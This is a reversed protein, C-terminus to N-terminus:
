RRTRGLRPPPRQPPPYHPPLQDFQGRFLHGGGRQHGGPQHAPRVIRDLDQAEPVHRAGVKDPAAGRRRPRPLLDLLRAAAELPSGSIVPGRMGLRNATGSSLSFIRNVSSTRTTYRAPACMAVGPTLTWTNLSKTRLWPACVRKPTYSMNTPPPRDRAVISASPIMGYIEADMM